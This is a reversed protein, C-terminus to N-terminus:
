TTSSDGTRREMFLLKMELSYAREFLPISGKRSALRKGLSVTVVTSTNAVCIKQRQELVRNEWCSEHLRSHSLFPLQAVDKRILSERTM